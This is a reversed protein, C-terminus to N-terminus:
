HMRELYNRIENYIDQRLGYPTKVLIKMENLSIYRPNIFQRILNLPLHTPNQILALPVSNNIIGSYLEKTQAIKSLVVISRNSKAVNEVLRPVNYVKPNDLLRCMLSDNRMGMMVLEQITYEKRMGLTISLRDPGILNSFSISNFNGYITSDHYIFGQDKIVSQLKSVSNGLEIQFGNKTSREISQAIWQLPSGKEDSIFRIISTVSAIRIPSILKTRQNEMLQLFPMLEQDKPMKKLWKRYQDSKMAYEFSLVPEGITKGQTLKEATQSLQQSLEDAASVLPLLRIMKKMNYADANSSVYDSQMKLATAEGKILLSLQINERESLSLGNQLKQLWGLAVQSAIAIENATNIRCIARLTNYCHYAETQLDICDIEIRRFVRKLRKLKASYEILDYDSERIDLFSYLVYELAKPNPAGNLLEKLLAGPELSEESRIFIRALKEAGESFPESSQITKKYFDSVITKAISVSDM